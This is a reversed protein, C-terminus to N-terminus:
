KVIYYAGYWDSTKDDFRNEKMWRIGDRLDTREVIETVGFRKLKRYFGDALAGRKEDDKECAIKMYEVSLYEREIRKRVTEDTEAALAAKFLDDAKKVFAEDYYGASFEDYITAKGKSIASECLEAYKEIQPAGKGFVGFIFDHTIAKEDQSPDFLLKSFLYNKLDGMCTDGGYSFNGEMLVGKVGHARYYRINEAFAKIPLMPLLYHRYNVAYDWIYLRDAVKAWEDIDKLFAKASESGEAALREFSRGRECEINCLRVIVNKHAKLGKPANRSYRYAFTHLLVNPYEKEISEALRNVFSIVSGSPSKYKEDTSRCKDCRCYGAASDEQAVSFVNCDPNERIWRKLTNLAIDFVEPNSLCLQKGREEGDATSYYEPHKERYIEPPVLDFFSHHCNFFKMRGGQEEPIPACCSNLRNKVSFDADWAFRSYSDRYEFAPQAGIKTEEMFLSSKKEFVEMDKAYKKLGGYRSLFEYVGYLTGRNGGGAILVDGNELPKIIFGENGLAEYNEDTAGRVFKGVHIEKGRRKVRDSYYPVYANFIKLFYKQLESAAYLEARSAFKSTVIAYESEENKIIEIM